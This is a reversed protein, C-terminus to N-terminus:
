IKKFINVSESLIIVTLLQNWMKAASVMFTWCFLLKM